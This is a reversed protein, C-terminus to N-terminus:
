SKGNGQHPALDIRLFAFEAVFGAGKPSCAYLGAQVLAGERDEHLHALRIQKWDRGDEAAEVLYDGGRRHIRLGVAKRGLPFEQTSWDSYAHNTVVAGLRSPGDPEYEVSTKLWCSPSLRVMLGAQDYRHVPTFRVQTTLIFDGALEAFLLHGNDAQFGYHTRQWFDTGGSPQIRLCRRGPDVSWAPPECHWRLRPDLERRDFLEHLIPNDM